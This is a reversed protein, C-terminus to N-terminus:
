TSLTCTLTCLGEYKLQRGNFFNLKRELNIDRFTKKCYMLRTATNPVPIGGLVGVLPVDMYQYAADGGLRARVACYRCYASFSVVRIRPSVLPVPERSSIPSPCPYLGSHDEYEFLGVPVMKEHCYLLSTISSTSSKNSPTPSPPLFSAHDCSPQLPVGCNWKIDKQEM